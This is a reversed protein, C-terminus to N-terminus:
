SIPSHAGRFVCGTGEPAAHIPVKSQVQGRHVRQQTVAAMSRARLHAQPQHPKLELYMGGTGRQLRVHRRRRLGSEGALNDIPIWRSGFCFL